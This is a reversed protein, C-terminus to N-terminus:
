ITLIANTGLFNAGTRIRALSNARSPAPSVETDGSDNDPCFGSLRVEKGEQIQEWAWVEVDSWAADSKITADSSAPPLMLLFMASAVAASVINM